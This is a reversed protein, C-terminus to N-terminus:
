VMESDQLGWKYTRYWDIKIEYSDPSTHRHAILKGCHYISATKNATFIVQSNEEYAGFWGLFDVYTDLSVKVFKDKKKM